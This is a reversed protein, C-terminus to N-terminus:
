IEMQAALVEAIDLVKVQEGIGKSRIADDFMLMCYPCATAVVDAKADLADQLRRHNIRTNADTEVWMGGGGGGCCFSDEGRRKMEVREVGAKDLLERPQKYIDNYRGLYCSDHFTLKGHVGNGNATPNPLNLEALLESYHLVEYDGGMQPYENKLTNFCHPCATVVRNFKVKGLTEINQKAFEQFIYEHGMRRATEGCCIEDFGLVAFDVGAKQMLKAFARTVKKNREDFAAACGTFFLVDTTEGPALEKVNLGEAWTMRNEPPMGWPNGQRELNRMTDGVSKPMKGSTLLQYRRLDVIEDVPNIFAPCKVICAGCTTCQWPYEENMVSGFIEAEPKAEGTYLGTVMAKRMLQVVEKPSYKMGSFTAPCAEECRGCRLCADFSLLQQSTFEAAKGVGLIETTEINEIKALEGTKRNPRLLINWPANILHRMKTFPLVGVLILALTAHTYVLADHWAAAQGSPFGTAAIIAAAWNGVPSWAAWDPKTVLIRIGENTFGAVAILFLMVLAFWDDWKTDLYKPRLVLRRFGAMLVGLIIFAGAIDMVLEYGLYWGNRPFATLEFPTFLKMQMLNIATGIVQIAVGWFIMFHMVGPYIKKIIRVQGLVHVFFDKVRPMARDLGQRFSTKSTVSLQDSIVTEVTM